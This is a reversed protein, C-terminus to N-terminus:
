RPVEAAAQIKAFAEVYMPPKGPGRARVKERVEGPVEMEDAWEDFHRWDASWDHDERAARFHRPAQAEVYPCEIPFANQELGAEVSLCHPNLEHRHEYITCQNTDTDLYECPFPTIFVTRGIIIKQYCCKGCRTCLAEHAAPDTKCPEAM